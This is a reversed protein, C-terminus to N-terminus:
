DQLKLKDLERALIIARFNCEFAELDPDDSVMTHLTKSKLNLKLVEFHKLMLLTPPAYIEHKCIKCIFAYKQMNICNLLSPCICM